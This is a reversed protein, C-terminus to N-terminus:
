SPLIRYGDLAGAVVCGASCLSAEKDEDEAGVGGSSLAVRHERLPIPALVMQDETEVGGRAEPDELQSLRHHGLGAGRHVGEPGAKVHGERKEGFGVRQSPPSKPLQPLM